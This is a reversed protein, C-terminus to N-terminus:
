QGTVYVNGADDIVMATPHNFENGTVNYRKVWLEQSSSDYKITIYDIGATLGPGSSAVYVNGAADVKVAVGISVGQNYRAEWQLAGSADYKLTLCNQTAGGDPASTGTVYVNGNDDVAIDTPEDTTNNILGNNGNYREAWIENGQSDYKITLYDLGSDYGNITGFSEGTVYVNGSQDVTIAYGEDNANATGNYKAEWQLDGSSSYKITTYDEGTNIEGGTTGTIYVNGLNDIVMDFPVAGFNGEFTRVWDETVQSYHLTASLLLVLYLLITKM